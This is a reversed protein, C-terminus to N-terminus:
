TNAVFQSFDVCVATEDICRVISLADNDDPPFDCMSSYESHLPQGPPHGFKNM